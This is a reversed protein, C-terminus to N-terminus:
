LFLRRAAEDLSDWARRYIFAYLEDVTKGRAQALDDLIVDLAFVHTQGVVLRLALPNGGVTQYIRKLDAEDAQQLRILNHQKTEYRILALAETQNLEPLPFHYVPVADDYFRERSTLLFKSPNALQHLTPLLVEVDHLTELNDIVILHRRQQLRTHLLSQLEEASLTEPKPLNPMLQAALQDVLSETTLAPQTITETQGSLKFIQTKASVWGVDDFLNHQIIHRTVAHALSTKGIGGIGEIAVLWHNDAELLIEGLKTMHREAGILQTYTPRELRQELRTQRQACAAQEQQQLIHALQKIAEQQRRYATATSMNISNIIIYMKERDFFRRTLIEAGDQNTEKLKDVLAQLVKNTAQRSNDVGTDLTNQYLCLGEFPSTPANAKHWGKFATSIDKILRPLAQRSDM